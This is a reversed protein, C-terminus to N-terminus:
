VNVVADSREEVARWERGVSLKKTDAIQLGIVIRHGRLTEQSTEVQNDLM